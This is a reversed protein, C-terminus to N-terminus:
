LLAGIKDKVTLKAQIFDEHSLLLSKTIRRIEESELNEVKGDSAAVVFLAHLIKRKESKEMLDNLPRAYLHHEHDVLRQIEDKAISVIVDIERPTLETFAELGKKMAHTETEFIQLDSYAVRAMLGAVCAVNILSEESNDPFEKILRDHISNISNDNDETPFFTKWLNM